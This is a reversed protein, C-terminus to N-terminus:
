FSKRKHLAKAKRNSASQINTVHVSGTYQHHHHGSYGNSLLQHKDSQLSGSHRSDDAYSSDEELIKELLMDGSTCGKTQSLWSRTVRIKSVVPFNFRLTKLLNIPQSTRYLHRKVLLRQHRSQCRHKSIPAPPRSHYTRTPCVTQAASKVGAVFNLKVNQIAHRFAEQKLTGRWVIGQLDSLM